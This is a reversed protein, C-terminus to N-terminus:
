LTIAITSTSASTNLRYILDSRIGETNCHPGVQDAYVNPGAVEVTAPLNFIIPHEKSRDKGKFWAEQVANCIEVAFEPETQTFTEPSYEFQWDTRDGRAIAENILDRVLNTHKVALDITQQKSNNFVVKRFLPSTANYMHFIVRPADRVSAMTRRILDERSQTLVQLWVGEEEGLKQEVLGRVFNFDTDSAAPFAVEIEKFGCQVLQSGASQWTLNTDPLCFSSQGHQLVKDKARHDYSQRQISQRRKLGVVAM